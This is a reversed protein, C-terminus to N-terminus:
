HRIPPRYPTASAVPPLLTAPAYVVVSNAAFFDAAREASLCGLAASCSACDAGCDAHNPDASDPCMEHSLGPQAAPVVESAAHDNGVCHGSSMAVAPQREHAGCPGGMALVPQVLLLFMLGAFTMKRRMLLGYGNLAGVVLKPILVRLAPYGLQSGPRVLARHSEFLRRTAICGSWRLLAIGPLQYVHVLVPHEAEM